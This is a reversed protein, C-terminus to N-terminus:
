GVLSEPNARAGKEILRELREQAASFMAVPTRNGLESYVKAAHGYTEISEDFHLHNKRVLGKVMILLTEPRKSRSFFIRYESQLQETFSDM